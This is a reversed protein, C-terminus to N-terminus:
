SSPNAALRLEAPICLEPTIAWDAGQGAAVTMASEVLKRNGAVDGTVPALHLLSIRLHNM